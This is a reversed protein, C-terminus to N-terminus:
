PQGPLGLVETDSRRATAPPAGADAPVGIRLAIAPHAAENLLARLSRRAAAVEVVESIPSAVLGQATLTLWIASLAEGAALWARRDDHETLLVGYATGRDTGAGQPDRDRRFTRAPVLRWTDPATTRGPLGDQRDAPRRTTWARLDSALARDAHEVIDAIEAIDGFSSLETPELFRLHVGHRASVARLTDLQSREPPTDAFPRRDTHRRYIAEYSRRDAPCRPGRHLRAVLDPRDDDPLREVAGAYGGARLATVAHDLAVGCSIHLLRLDPDLAQLQRGRDILLEASEGVFRWRWPQTNLVSPARLAALTAETLQDVAARDDDRRDATRHSRDTM